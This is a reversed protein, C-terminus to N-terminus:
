MKPLIPSPKHNFNNHLHFFTRCEIRNGIMAQIKIYSYESNSPKPQKPIEERVTKLVDIGTDGIKGGDVSMTMSDGRDPSYHNWVCVKFVPDM